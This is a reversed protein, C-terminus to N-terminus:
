QQKKEVAAFICRKKQYQWINIAIKVIFKAIFNTIFILVSQKRIFSHFRFSPIIIESIGRNEGCKGHM